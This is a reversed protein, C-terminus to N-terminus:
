WDQTTGDLDNYCTDGECRLYPVGEFPPNDAFEVTWGYIGFDATCQTDEPYVKFAVRTADNGAKAAIPTTKCSSSGSTFFTITSGELVPAFESFSTGAEEVLLATEEASLETITVKDGSTSPVLIGDGPSGTTTCGSLVLGTMLALASLAIIKKM